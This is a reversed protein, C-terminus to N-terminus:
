VVCVKMKQFMEIGKIIDIFSLAQPTTVLVSGTLPAAQCLTIHIDGTGPPMDLVLVDLQLSLVAPQYTVKLNPYYM